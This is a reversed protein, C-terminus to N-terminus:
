AQALQTLKPAQDNLQFVYRVFSKGRESYDSYNDFSAFGPSFLIDTAERVDEFAAKVAQALEGFVNSPLGFTGILLCKCVPKM